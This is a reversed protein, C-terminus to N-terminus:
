ALQSVRYAIKETNAFHSGELHGGLTFVMWLILTGVVTGRIRRIMTAVAIGILTLGLFITIPTM